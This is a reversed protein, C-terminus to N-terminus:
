YKVEKWCIPNRLGWACKPIFMYGKGRPFWIKKGILTPKDIWSGPTCADVDINYRGASVDPQDIADAFWQDAAKNGKEYGHNVGVNYIFVTYGILMLTIAISKLIGGGFSVLPTTRSAFVAGTM